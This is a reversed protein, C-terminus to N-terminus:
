LIPHIEIDVISNNKILWYLLIQFISLDHTFKDIYSCFTIMNGKKNKYIYSKLTERHVYNIAPITGSAPRQNHIKLVAKIGV